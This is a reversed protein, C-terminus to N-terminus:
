SSVEDAEEFLPVMDHLLQYLDDRAETPLVAQNALEFIATTDSAFESYGAMSRQGPEPFRRQDTLPVSRWKERLLDAVAEKSTLTLLM